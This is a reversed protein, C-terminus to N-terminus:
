SFMMWVERAYVGILLGTGFLPLGWGLRSERPRLTDYVSEQENDGASRLTVPIGNERLYPLTDQYYRQLTGLEDLLLSVAQYDLDTWRPVPQGADPYDEVRRRGVSTSVNRRFTKRASVDTKLSVGCEVRMRAYGSVSVIPCYVIAPIFYACQRRVVLM